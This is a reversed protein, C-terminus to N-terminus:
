WLPNQVFLKSKQVENYPVPYLLMARNWARTEINVRNYFSGAGVRNAKPSQMDMGTRFLQQDRKNNADDATMWRRIDFYRQGECFLEVQRERQIAWRQKEQDGIINKKGENALEQYGPIGARKRVKDLYTIIKTDSPDIENCVEAYYLYFDALRLLISPRSWQKVVAPRNKGSDAARTYYQLSRYKFKYLMYGTYPNEAKSRDNGEGKAFGVTYNAKNQPQVHWSKGEYTVAAYFRPERNHYMNYIDKDTRQDENCVNKWDGFGDEKYGSNPDDIELGNNMFFADVSEQFVGVNGFANSSYLDRPNTRPEMNLTVSYYHNYPGAWIIEDTYYQYLEYVSLNPDGTKSEYLAYGKEEAFNLFDELRRKAIKWKEPDYDPFLREGDHNTLSLAETYKGNFLPSAAYVWLKARLALATAKTPRVMEALNYKDNNHDTHDTPTANFTTEPLYGSNIVEELLQDIHNVLKDIPARAYDIQNQDEPDAIETVIPVPGYLEFLSFYSYAILFKAEAKMRNVDEESLYDVGSSVNPDGLPKANELFIMAQRIYIYCRWWRHFPASNSTFGNPLATYAAGQRATVEGALLNWGGTFAGTSSNVGLGMESYDSIVNFTNKHWREMYGKNNFVAEKDIVDALEKSVDLYDSCSSFCSILGCGILSYLINKIKM